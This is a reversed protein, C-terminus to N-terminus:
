KENIKSYCFSFLWLCLAFSGFLMSYLLPYCVLKKHLQPYINLLTYCVVCLPYYVARLLYNGIRFMYYGVYLMYHVVHFVYHVVRLM